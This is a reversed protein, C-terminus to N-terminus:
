PTRAATPAHAPGHGPVRHRRDDLQVRDVVDGEQAEGQPALAPRAVAQPGQGGLQGLLERLHGLRAAGLDDAALRPDHADLGVGVAHRGGPDAPHLEGAGELRGGDPLGGARRHPVVPLDPDLDARQELPRLVDAAHDHANVLAPRDVDGLHGADDVPGVLGRVRDEGRRARGTRGPGSRRAALVGRDRDGERLPGPRVRTRERLGDQLLELVEPGPEDGGLDVHVDGAVVALRRLLLRVLEDVVEQMAVSETTASMESAM